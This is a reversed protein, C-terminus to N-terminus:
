KEGEKWCRTVVETEKKSHKSLGLSSSVPAPSLHIRRSRTEELVATLVTAPGETITTKAETSQYRPSAVSLLFDALLAVRNQGPSNPM